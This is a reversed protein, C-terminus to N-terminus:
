LPGGSRHEHLPLSTDNGSSLGRRNKRRFVCLLGTL